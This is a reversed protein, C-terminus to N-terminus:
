HGITENYISTQILDINIQTWTYQIINDFNTGTINKRTIDEGLNQTDDWIELWRAKLDSHIIKM